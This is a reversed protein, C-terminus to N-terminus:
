YPEKEIEADLGYSRSMVLLREALAELTLADSKMVVIDGDREVFEVGRLRVIYDVGTAFVSSVAQMFESADSPHGTESIVGGLGRAEIGEVLPSETPAGSAPAIEVIGPGYWTWLSRIMCESFESLRPWEHWLVLDGAVTLVADGDSVSELFSRPLDIVGTKADHWNGLRFRIM